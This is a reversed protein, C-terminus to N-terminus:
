FLWRIALYCALKLPKQTEEMLRVMPARAIEILDRGSLFSQGVSFADVGIRWKQTDPAMTAFGREALTTLLRHSTSVPLGSHAAADKLSLGQPMNSLCKLLDLARTLSQVTGSKAADGM